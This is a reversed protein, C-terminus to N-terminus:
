MWNFWLSWFSSFHEPIFKPRDLSLYLFSQLFCTFGVNGLFSTLAFLSRSSYPVYTVTQDQLFMLRALWSLSLGCAVNKITAM